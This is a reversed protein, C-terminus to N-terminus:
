LGFDHSQRGSDLTLELGSAVPNELKKPIPFWEKAAQKRADVSKRSQRNTEEGPLAAHRGGKSPDRSTIGVRVKGPQIGDVRYTGDREIVGSYASEDEGLVTVSGFTVPKGKYTVKGELSVTRACGASLFLLGLVPTVVLWKKWVSDASKM